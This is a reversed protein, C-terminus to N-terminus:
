DTFHFGLGLDTETQLKLLFVDPHLLGVACVWRGTCLTLNLPETWNLQVNGEIAAIHTCYSLLFNQIEKLAFLQSTYHNATNSCLLFFTDTHRQQTRRQRRPTETPTTTEEWLGIVLTNRENTIQVCHICIIATVVYNM